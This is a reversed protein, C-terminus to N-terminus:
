KKKLYVNGNITKLRIKHKGGNVTGKGYIYKRPSGHDYEWSKTQEQQIPFDSSIEYTDHADKTYALEIDITMSLAAPVTLTVTGGMSQIDADRDGTAPDGTMTVFVDGGMTTATVSGDIADIDIDGGMTKARAFQAASRIHIDGGMTHVDTGAPADDVNIDGGMTKITVENRSGKGSTTRANKQTVKGGQSVAKVNGSVDEVLVDGGMTKVSGDVDSGTLTVAGGMTTLDLSGKLNALTMTGGMTRGHMTGELTKLTISGGMTELDLNFRQPVSIVFDLRSNRENRHRVYNSTLRVGESTQTAEVDCEEADRGGIRGSIVVENRDWGTISISGGTKLDVELKSGPQVNFQKEFSQPSSTWGAALM